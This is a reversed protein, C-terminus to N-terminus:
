LEPSEPPLLGLQHARHVAAPANSVGLKEYIHAVHTDVTSYGIGLRQAMEKKVLGQAQLKIIDLERQTLLNSNEPKSLKTQLTDLIFKAVDKDLTAGGSVVTRIAEIIEDITASKLLYGAAGLSIAKLIDQPEDSQTLVMVKTAPVLQRIQPLAELGSIGPLRLDLLILDPMRRADSERLSRMAVESTGFHTGLEIDACDQLALEIAERYELNDEVLMVRIMKNAEVDAVM